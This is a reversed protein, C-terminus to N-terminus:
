CGGCSGYMEFTLPVQIVASCAVSGDYQACCMHSVTCNASPTPSSNRVVCCTTSSTPGPCPSLENTLCCGAHVRSRSPCTTQVSAPALSRCDARAVSSVVSPLSHCNPTLM